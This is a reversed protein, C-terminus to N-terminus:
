DIKDVTSKYFVPDFSPVVDIDEDDFFFEAIYLTLNEFVLYGIALIGM